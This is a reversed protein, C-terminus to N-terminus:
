VVELFVTGQNGVTTVWGTVGDSRCKCKMRMLGSKEEKKAWERVEVIEGVKLKRTTDKVKKAANANSGDEKEAKLEKECHKFALWESENIKGDTDADVAAFLEENTIDKARQHYKLM